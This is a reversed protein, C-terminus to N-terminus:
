LNLNDRTEVPSITQRDQDIDMLPTQLITQDEDMNFMQQIQEAERNAQMTPCERTFHNYERCEFCRIRDRNTTARSGSRSRSNSVNRDDRRNRNNKQRGYRQNGRMNYGYSGRYNSDYRLRGRYGQGYRPRGKYTNNSRFRDQFRREEYNCRMHARGGNSQYVQPKFQRNQGEYETVLKVMMVMLKDIKQEIGDTMDFTVKKSFGEKINM